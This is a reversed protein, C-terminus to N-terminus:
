VAAIQPQGPRLGKTVVPLNAQAKNKLTTIRAELPIANRKRTATNLHKFNGSVASGMNQIFENLDKKQKADLNSSGKLILNLRQLWIKI